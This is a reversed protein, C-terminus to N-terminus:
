NCYPSQVLDLCVVTEAERERGQEEERREREKGKTNTGWEVEMFSIHGQHHCGSIPRNDALLPVTFEM